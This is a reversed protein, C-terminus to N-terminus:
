RPSLCFASECWSPGCEELTSRLEKAAVESASAAAGAAAADAAAGASLGANSDNEPTRHDRFSSLILPM